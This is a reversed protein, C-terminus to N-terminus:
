EDLTEPKATRLIKQSLATIRSSCSKDMAHHKGNCNVCKPEQAQTPCEKATHGSKACNTCLNNTALCSKPPLGYKLCKLCQNVEEFTKVRCKSFGIYLPGKVVKNYIVPDLELVWSVTARERPGRKFIPKILSSAKDGFIGLEPNQNVIASPFDSPLICAKINEILGRPWSPKDEQMQSNKKTLSRLIDASEKNHVKLVLKRSKATIM